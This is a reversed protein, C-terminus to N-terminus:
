PNTDQGSTRIVVNTRPSEGLGGHGPVIGIYRKTVFGNDLLGSCYGEQFRWYIPDSPHLVETPVTTWYTQDWVLRTNLLVERM